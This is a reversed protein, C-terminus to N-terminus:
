CKGPDKSRRFGRIGNNVAYRELHMLSFWARGEVNVYSHSSILLERAGLEFGGAKGPGPPETM